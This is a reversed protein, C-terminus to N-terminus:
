RDRERRDEGHAGRPAACRPATGQRALRRVPQWLWSPDLSLRTILRDVERWAADAERRQDRADLTTVLYMRDRFESIAEKYTQNLVIAGRLEESASAYQGRYM